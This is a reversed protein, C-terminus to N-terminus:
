RMIAHQPQDQDYIIFKAIREVQLAIMVEELEQATIDQEGREIKALKSPFWGYYGLSSLTDIVADISKSKEKRKKRIELGYNM